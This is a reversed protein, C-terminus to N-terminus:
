QGPGTAADGAAPGAQEAQTAVEEVIEILKSTRLVKTM